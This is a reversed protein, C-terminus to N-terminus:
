KAIRYTLIEKKLGAERGALAVGAGGGIAAVDAIRKELEDAERNLLRAPKKTERSRPLRSSPKPTARPM